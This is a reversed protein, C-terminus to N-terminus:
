LDSAARRSGPLLRALVIGFYTLGLGAAISVILYAVGLVADGDKVLTATEVAMTSYTTFAGLFGIAFFARLYRMPAEREFVLRLFLGLVFAGSLNTVFTAWPFSDPAVHILRSVEYRAPAGLAGGAAIVAVVDRQLRNAVREGTTRETWPRKSVRASAPLGFRSQRGAVRRIREATYFSPTTM